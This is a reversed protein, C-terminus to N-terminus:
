PGTAPAKRRTATVVSSWGTARFPFSSPDNLNCRFEYDTGTHLGTITRSYTGGAPINPFSGSVLHWILAGSRRSQCQPRMLIVNPNEIVLTVSRVTTEEDDVTVNPLVLAQTAPGSEMSGQSGGLLSGGVTVAIVLAVLAIAIIGGKLM